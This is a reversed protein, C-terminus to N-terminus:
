GAIDNKRWSGLLFFVLAFLLLITLEMAVSSLKGGFIVKEAAKLVWTTPLFNAIRQLLDPMIDRPWYCGGLMCIPTIILTFIASAQGLDKSMTSVWVGLSVCVLSFVFFVVFTNFISPGLDGKLILIVIAFIAIIQFVSVMIFSLLNQLMYSKISVPTTFVRHYTKNLKDKIIITSGFTSLLLMGMVLFGLGQFTSVRKGNKDGVAIYDGNFSANDYDKIMSYFKGEDGEAAKAMNKLSGLYSELYFVISASTNAEKISYGNIKVDEGNILRKTFGEDIEIIYDMNKDILNKKIDNGQLSELSAKGNLKTSITKTLSTNDRDIIGVKPLGMEFSGMMIMGLFFVPLIIMFILNVKDKLIRKINYIFITM